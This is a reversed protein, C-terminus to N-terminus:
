QSCSPRRIRRIARLHVLLAPDNQISPFCEASLTSSVLASKMPLGGDHPQQTSPPPFGQTSKYNLISISSVRDGTPLDSSTSHISCAVEDGDKRYLVLRDNDDQCEDGVIKKLKQLDTGPGFFLRLSGGKLEKPTFGFIDAFSESAECIRYPFDSNVMISPFGAEKSKRQLDRGGGVCADYGFSVCSSQEASTTLSLAFFSSQSAMTPVIDCGSVSVDRKFSSENV